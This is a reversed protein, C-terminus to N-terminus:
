PTPRMTEPIAAITLNKPRSWPPVEEWAEKAEDYSASWLRVQGSAIRLTRTTLSNLLTRDHSVVVGCGPFSTLAAELLGRGEADLHNTPEDLLLVDPEKALATAIQWRKREGPSMSPWRELDGGDLALSARLRVADRDWAEAFRLIDETIDDVRQPCMVPPLGNPDITITGTDPPHAGAILSLLTTKGAGNVGVLGTWGPGLDFTVDDIIPVASTHAYSVNTFRIASM